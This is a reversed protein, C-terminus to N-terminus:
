AAKEGSGAQGTVAAARLLDNLDARDQGAHGIRVRRGELSWRRAADHAAALGAPDNDAAIIVRRVEPPLVLTRMGGTSLAAWAPWGLCLASLATEIGEAVVLTAGDQMARFDALRVAGGRVPGKGMKAKLVGEREDAKRWVEGVAPDHTALPANLRRSGAAAPSAAADRALYIRWIGSVAGDPGQVAAVLAPFRGVFRAQRAGPYTQFCPLAPHYRLSPPLACGIGRGRLYAEAPSGGIHRCERWVERAGQAAEARAQAEEADRQRRRAEAARAAEEEQQQQRQPDVLPAGNNVDPVDVGALRAAEAVAARFDLGQRHQLWAFVDGHAGCGFCHYFGRDDQVTFSPTREEHFPCLGVFDGGRRQLRVARGILGSLPLGDRIAQLRHEPVRSM